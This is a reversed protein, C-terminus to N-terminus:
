CVVREKEQLDLAQCLTWRHLFELYIAGGSQGDGEESVHMVALLKRRVKSKGKKSKTEKEVILFIHLNWYRRVDKYPVGWSKAPRFELVLLRMEWHRELLREGKREFEKLNPKKYQPISFFGPNEKEHDM